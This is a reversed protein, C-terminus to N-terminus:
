EPSGAEMPSRELVMRLIWAAAGAAVLHKLSHGSVLHLWALFQADLGECVKALAYVGLAIFHDMRRTYRSPFLLIVLPVLLAPLYQVLVYPRLDGAGVSETWRWYVVSGVGLGLLLALLWPGREPRTREGLVAAVWSMFGLSMPLRDWFLRVTDPALHYYASGVGTLAVASPVTM